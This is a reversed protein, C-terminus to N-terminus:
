GVASVMVSLAGILAALPPEVIVPCAIVNSRASQHGLRPRAGPYHGCSPLAAEVQAAIVLAISISGFVFSFGQPSMGYIRQLVFTSGSIYAFM